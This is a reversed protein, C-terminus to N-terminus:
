NEAIPAEPEKEPEKEPAPAPAKPEPEPPRTRTHDWGYLLDHIRALKQDDTLKPDGGISEFAARLHPMEQNAAVTSEFHFYKEALEIRARRLDLHESALLLRTYAALHQVAEPREGALKVAAKGVLKLAAQRLDALSVPLGNLKNAAAQAEVLERVQRQRARRRYFRCVGALSTSLGFEAKVREVASAYGLNEEFLWSELTERQGSTLQNWLSDDRLKRM